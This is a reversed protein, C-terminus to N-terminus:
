AAKKFKISQGRSKIESPFELKSRVAFEKPTYGIAEIIPTGANWATKGLFVLREFPPQRAFDPSVIALDIDSFKSEKRRAFSGFLYVQEVIIHKQLEKLFVEIIKKIRPNPSAM